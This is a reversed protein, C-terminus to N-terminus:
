YSFKRDNELENLVNKNKNYINLGIHHNIINLYIKKMYRMIIINKLIMKILKKRRLISYFFILFFTSLYFSM